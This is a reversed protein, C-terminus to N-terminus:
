WPHLIEIGHSTQQIQGDRELKRLTRTIVERSSGLDAAIQRHLVQLRSTGMITAKEQLYNLLRHDLQEFVLQHITELLENYRLYYEKHYLRSLVPFELLWSLLQEAPLLLLDSDEETVAYIHSSDNNLVATFSMVCSQNPKIYYLLLEKDNYQTFVRLLGKLVIPVVKVYQGQRMLGTQAPVSVLDAHSAIKELLEPPYGTLYEQLLPLAVPM